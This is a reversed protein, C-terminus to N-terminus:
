TREMCTGWAALLWTGCGSLFRSSGRIDKVTEKLRKLSRSVTHM